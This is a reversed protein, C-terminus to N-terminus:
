SKLGLIVFIEVLNYCYKEFEESTVWLLFIMDFGMEFSVGRGGGFWM